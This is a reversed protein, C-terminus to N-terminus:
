TRYRTQIAPPHFSSITENTAIVPLQLSLANIEHDIAFLGPHHSYLAIRDAINM